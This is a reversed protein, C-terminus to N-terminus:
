PQRRESLLSIGAVSLLIIAAIPWGVSEEGNALIIVNFIVSTTLLVLALDIRSQRSMLLLIVPGASKAASSISVLPISGRDVAAHRDADVPKAPEQIESEPTRASPCKPFCLGKFTGRRALRAAQTLGNRFGSGRGV